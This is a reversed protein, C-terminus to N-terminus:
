SAAVLSFPADSVLIVKATHDPATGGAVTTQARVYRGLGAVSDLEDVSGNASLQTTAAVEVWNEGDSSTQLSVDTTPSTAGGDQTAHLFAMFTQQHDAAGDADSPLVVYEDGEQNTNVATSVDLLTASYRFVSM